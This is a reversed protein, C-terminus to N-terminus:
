ITLWGGDVALYQGTTYSTMDSAFYLIATDLEGENGKRKMPCSRKLYDTFWDTDIYDNTMESNFYGPGICNVTIKYEAWENALAKTMMVVGGKSTCYASLDFMDFSAAKSNISATNIIRGYNNKKMLKAAERAVMYVANLNVDIVGLWEEDTQEEAPSSIGVGANNVLIDLKGFHDEVKQVAAPISAFDSVDCPVVLAESGLATIEEAVAKLRDERRAMLAVKAGQNALAKAFQVGLGSSAGTVLAVRGTLDFPNKM